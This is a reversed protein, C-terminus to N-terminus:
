PATNLNRFVEEIADNMNRELEDFMAIQKKLDAVDCGQELDKVSVAVQDYFDTQAISRLLTKLGGVLRANRDLDAKIANRYNSCVSSVIQKIEDEVSHEADQQQLFDLLSKGEFLYEKNKLASYACVGDVDIGEDTVTEYVLSVLESLESFPVLDCRNMVIYIPSDNIERLEHLFDLDSSPITGNKADIFWLIAKAQATYEIAVNRDDASFSGVSRGPNYGPTDIFCLRSLKQDKFPVQVSSFPLISKIDFSYSKVYDHTLSRFEDHELDVFGGVMSYGRIVTRESHTVYTPLATMPQLGIALRIDSEGILQNIFESKGSSFGGAVSIICKNRITSAGVVLQLEKEVAQLMMLATAEEAFSSEADACRVFDEHLLKSFDTLGRNNPLKSALIKDVLNFRKELEAHSKGIEDAQETLRQRDKTLEGATENLTAKVFDVQRRRSFNWFKSLSELTLEVEGFLHSTKSM